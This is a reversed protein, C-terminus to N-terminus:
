LYPTSRPATDRLVWRGFPAAKIATNSWPGSFSSLKETHSQHASRSLGVIM